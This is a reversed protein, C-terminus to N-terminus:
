VNVQITVGFAVTNGRIRRQEVENAENEIM